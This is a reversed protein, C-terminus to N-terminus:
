GICFILCRTGVKTSLKCGMPWLGVQDGRGSHPLAYALFRGQHWTPIRHSSRCHFVSIPLKPMCTHTIIHCIIDFSTSVKASPKCGRPWLGVQDERGSHPLACVLFRGPALHPHPVQAQHNKRDASLYMLAPLTGSSYLHRRLDEM